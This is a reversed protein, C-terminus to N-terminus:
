SVSIGEAVREAIKWAEEAEIGGPLYSYVLQGYEAAQEWVTRQDIARWILDPYQAALAQINDRHNLTNFRAKNPIIGLLTSGYPRYRQNQANIKKMESLSEQLGDFSLRACETVILFHDAAFNVSGDFMSATPGTDVIIFDLELVQAMDDLVEKFRFPSPQEIPIMATAKNSPLLYLPQMKEWGPPAFRAPPVIRVVDSLSMGDETMATFLGNEKPMGFALAAHGQPDTDVLGVRKNMLALGGALHTAITTKGVGGKRNAVVITKM